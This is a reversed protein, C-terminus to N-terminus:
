GANIDACAKLQKKYSTRKIELLALIVEGYIDTCKKITGSKRGGFWSYYM